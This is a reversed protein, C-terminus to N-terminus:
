CEKGVRREESRELESAIQLHLLLGVFSKHRENAIKANIAILQLILHGVLGLLRLLDKCLLLFCIDKEPILLVRVFILNM